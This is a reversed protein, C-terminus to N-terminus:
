NDLFLNFFFLFILCSSLYIFKKLAFFVKEGPFGPLGPHGAEGPEGKAGPFGPLGNGGPPGTPGM